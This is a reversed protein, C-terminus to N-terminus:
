GELLQLAERLKTILLDREDPDLAEEDEWYMLGPRDKMAGSYSPLSGGLKQLQARPHYPGAAIGVITGNFTEHEDRRAKLGCVPCRIHHIERTPELGVEAAVERITPEEVGSIRRLYEKRSERPM